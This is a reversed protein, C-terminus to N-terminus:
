NPFIWLPDEPPISDRGDDARRMDDATTDMAKRRSWPHHAVMLIIALLLLFALIYGVTDTRPSCTHWSSAVQGYCQRLILRRRSITVSPRQRLIIFRRLGAVSSPILAAWVPSPTRRLGVPLPRLYRFPRVAAALPGWHRAPARGDTRALRM